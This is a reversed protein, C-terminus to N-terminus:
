DRNLLDRRRGGNLDISIKALELSEITFERDSLCIMNNESREM